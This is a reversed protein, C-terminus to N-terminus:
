YAKLATSGPYEMGANKEASLKERTV